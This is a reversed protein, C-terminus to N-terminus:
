GTIFNSHPVIGRHFSQVNKTRILVSTIKTNYIKMSGDFSPFIHVKAQTVYKINDKKTNITKHM